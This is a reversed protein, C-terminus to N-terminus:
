ESPTVETGDTTTGDTTGTGDTSTGDDTAGTAASFVETIFANLADTDDLAGTYATGDMIILPTTTLATVDSNPIGAEARDTAATVWDSFEHGRICSAITEDTVGADQVLTVLAEDDLGGEPLDPQAAVLANHVVLAADPLTNAVCALANAARAGYSGEGGQAVPHLEISAYGATVYGQLAAGNATEFTSLDDNSYDVYETIRLVTSEDLESAIPTGGPEIAATTMATTTSGDGTFVIGDSLMNLPGTYTARIGSYVAWGVGGLAAVGVVVVSVIAIARNRRRRRQEEERRIRALERSLAQRDKKSLGDYLSKDSQAPTM